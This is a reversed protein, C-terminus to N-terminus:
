IWNLNLLVCSVSILIRFHWSSSFTLSFGSSFGNGLGHPSADLERHAPYAAEHPLGAFSHASSGGDEHSSDHLIDTHFDELKGTGDTDIVLSLSDHGPMNLESDAIVLLQASVKLILCKELGTHGGM